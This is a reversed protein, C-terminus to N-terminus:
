AAVEIALCESEQRGSFSPAKIYLACCIFFQVKVSNVIGTSKMQSYMQKKFEVPDMGDAATSTRPPPEM